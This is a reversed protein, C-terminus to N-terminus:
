DIPNIINNSHKFNILGFFILRFVLVITYIYFLDNELHFKILMISTKKSINSNLLKGSTKLRIMMQNRHSLKGNKRLFCVKLWYRKWTLSIKRQISKMLSSSEWLIMKKMLAIKLSIKCSLWHIKM